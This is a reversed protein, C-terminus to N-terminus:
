ANYLILLNSTRTIATYLMKQKEEVDRNLSINAVNVITKEYSSGQSKHVTIAHNYKMDAFQEMFQYYDKWYLTRLTCQKAFDKIINDYMEQSDEHIVLIGSPHIASLTYDGPNIRYVKLMITQSDGAGFGSTAFTHYVKVEGLQIEKVVVEENTFYKDGYPANFVLTEGLEVKAPTGYITNRVRKNIEDVEKNTWALYKVEDTGNVSALTAIIKPLDNSFLYGEMSEPNYSDQKAKLRPYIDRSLDIVPNGGKQRIIETLEVTPYNATFVPSVKEKVPPLQKADGIFILKVAKKFPDGAAHEELYKLLETNLMSAEDIVMYSVGRLPPDDDRYEPVFSIVGTKPHIKRKLKLASHTTAFEARKSPVKGMLVRVAKNTPASCIVRGPPLHNILENVLFTKGVGASGKILLRDSEQLINLSQQHVDQQHPTLMFKKNLTSFSLFYFVPHGFFKFM